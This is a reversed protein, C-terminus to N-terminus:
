IPRDYRNRPDIVQVIRELDSLSGWVM